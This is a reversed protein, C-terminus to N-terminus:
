RGFGVSVRHAGGLDFNMAAFSYDFRFLGAHLGLGFNLNNAESLFDYGARLALVENWAFEFGAVAGYTKGYPLYSGDATLTVRGREFPLLDYSAGARLRTPLRFEDRVYYLVQGFDTVSAGFTLREVPFVRVGADIGMGAADEDYIRTYFYRGTLGVQVKSGIPRALNLYVTLDYPSFTGIPDDTPKDRFEFDGASFSALGVGVCAAPFGRAVFLSQHHSDLIWKAYSVTAAFGDLGANAAPNLAIAPPGFASAVGAGAMGADRVGPVIKLSAFGMSGASAVAVVLVVSLLARM